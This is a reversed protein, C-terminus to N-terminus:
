ILIELTRRYRSNVPLLEVRLWSNCGAQSVPSQLGRRTHWSRIWRAPCYRSVLPCKGIVSDLHRPLRIWPSRNAQTVACPRPSRDGACHDCFDKLCVVLSTVLKQVPQNFEGHASCQCSSYTVDSYGELRHTIRMRVFPNESYKHKLLAFLLSQIVKDHMIPCTCLITVTSTTSIFTYIPFAFPFYYCTSQQM